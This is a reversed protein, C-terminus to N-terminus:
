LNSVRRSYNPWSADKESIVQIEIPWEIGFAPDDYRIGKEARPAYFQSMLYNAETNDVLTILSQAMGEPVYLMRHNDASLKVGFWEGFTCSNKRLDLIIDFFSGQTCRVLKAEACPDNQYHLGRLTGKSKSFSVNAQVWNTVLNNAKFENQCWFRAFFGRSDIKKEIDVIFSGKLPAETFLM